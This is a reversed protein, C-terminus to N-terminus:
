MLGLPVVVDSGYEVTDPGKGFTSVFPGHLVAWAASGHVWVLASVMQFVVVGIKLSNRAWKSKIGRLQRAELVTLCLTIVNNITFAM